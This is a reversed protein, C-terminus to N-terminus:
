LQPNEEKNRKGAASAGAVGLPILGFAEVPGKHEPKVDVKWWTVGNEDTIQTAGYKNKVYKGVDKEYFKYIPNSTDVKGSIDFTEELNNKKAWKIGETLADKENFENGLEMRMIDQEASIRDKPVAKFKGDGLVDTIVWDENGGGYGGGGGSIEMGVKLDPVELFVDDKIEGDPGLAWWRGPEGLGEVEMATEGTPFLLEKKGDEAAKKVEERIMRFHATPDSYQQLKQLEARRKDARLNVSELNPYDEVMKESFKGTSEGTFESELRGKQYLDSQVEIVRRTKGDAMDEVRTHGFYNEPGTYDPNYGGGFHVSGASTKIPSEYIHESYNKVNGRVNEPLVIHEYKTASENSSLPLLEDQVKRAFQATDVVDGKEHALVNRILDREVQKVDGMNTLDSIFQKSVATKGELKSLIKTTLNKGVPSTFGMMMGVGLAGKTPNYKMKGTPRGQEDLEPELGLGAGMVSKTGTNLPTVVGPAKPSNLVSTKAEGAIDKVEQLVKAEEKTLGEELLERLIQRQKLKNDSKGILGMIKSGAGIVDGRAASTVAGVGEFVKEGARTVEGKLSRPRVIDFLDDMMDAMLISRRPDRVKAADYGTAIAGEALDKLIAGPKESSNSILRPLIEAIRGTLPAEEAGVFDKGLFKFFNTLKSAAIAYNRNAKAFEGTVDVSPDTLPELLAHRIDGLLADTESGFIDSASENKKVTLLLRQRMLRIEKPTKEAISKGQTFQRFISQIAERDKGADAESFISGSFDLMPKGKEDQVVKIAKNFLWNDFTEIPKAISVPVEPMADMLPDLAEGAAKKTTQLHTVQEVIPEAAKKMPHDALEHLEKTHAMDLMELASAREQQSMEGITNVRGEKIGNKIAKKKLSNSVPVADQAPPPFFDDDLEHLPQTIETEKVPPRKNWPSATDVGKGAKLSNEIAEDASQSWSKLKGYGAGIAPLAAGTAAGMLGGLVAGGTISGATAEKEQAAAGAGGIVGALGEAKAAKFAAQKWPVKGAIGLSTAAKAQPLGMGYSALEAGAGFTELTNKGFGGGTVKGDKVEIDQGIKYPTSIAGEEYGLEKEARRVRESGKTITEEAGATDGTVFQGAATLGSELTGYAKLPTKAITRALNSFFGGKKQEPKEEPKEEEKKETIIKGLKPKFGTSTSTSKGLKPKFAEPPFAQPVENETTNEMSNIEM